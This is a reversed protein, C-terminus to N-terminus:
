RLQEKPLLGGLKEIIKAKMREKFKRCSMTNLGNYEHMRSM